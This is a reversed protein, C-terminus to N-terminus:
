DEKDHLEVNVADCEKLIRSVLGGNDENVPMSWYVRGQRIEEEYRPGDDRSIGLDVLTGVIGGTVAGSILGAVPGAAALVGLGPIAVSGIGLALGAVGGIVGGSTLGTSINDNETTGTTEGEGRETDELRVISVEDSGMGAERVEISAKEAKEASEFIAAIIRSMDPEKRQFIISGAIINKVSSM